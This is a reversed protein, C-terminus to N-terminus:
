RALNRIVVSTQFEVASSSAKQDVFGTPSVTQLSFDIGIIPYDSPSDQGCTFTCQAVQVAATDILAASNSSITLADNADKCSYTSISSDPFVLEVASTATPADVTGCNTPSLLATANRIGKAMQTLAYDGNSQILNVNNTKNNGRLVSVLISFMLSSIAVFVFIVALLEILTFGAEHKAHSYGIDLKWDGIGLQYKNAIQYKNNPIQEIM